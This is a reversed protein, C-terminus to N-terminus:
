HCLGYGVEGADGGGYGGGRIEFPTDATQQKLYINKGSVTALSTVASDPDMDIYVGHRYYITNAIFLLVILTCITIIFKKM